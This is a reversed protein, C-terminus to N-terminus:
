SMAKKQKQQSKSKVLTLPLVSFAAYGKSSISYYKLSAEM